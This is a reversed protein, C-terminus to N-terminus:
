RKLSKLAQLIDAPEMRKTYDLDVLGAAITGDTGIVYTATVPLEWHGPGNYEELDIGFREKYIKKMEAPITYLLKYARLTNGQTDSLLPFSLAEKNQQLQAGLTRPSEGPLSAAEVAEIDLMLEVENGLMSVGNSLAANYVVGFATRDLTGAGHFGVRQVGKMDVGYGLVKGAFTVDARVGHFTMTGRITLGQDPGPIVKASEFTATPYKEVNFFDASRLHKDRDGNATDVTSMDAAGRVKMRALDNTDCTIAGSFSNIRGPFMTYLHRIRFSLGSHVPDIVFKQEEAQAAWGLLVALALTVHRLKM